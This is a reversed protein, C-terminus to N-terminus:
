HQKHCYLTLFVGGGLEQAAIYFVKVCRHRRSQRYSFSLPLMVKLIVLIFTNNLECDNLSPSFYVMALQRGTSASSRLEKRQKHSATHCILSM